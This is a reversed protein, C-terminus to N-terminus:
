DTPRRQTQSSPVYRGDSLQLLKEFLEHKAPHACSKKFKVTLWKELNERSTVNLTGRAADKEYTQSAVANLASFLDSPERATRWTVGEM